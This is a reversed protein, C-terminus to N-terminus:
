YDTTVSYVAACSFIVADDILVMLFPKAWEFPIAAAAAVVVVVVVGDM